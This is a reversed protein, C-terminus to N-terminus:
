NVKELAMVVHLRNRKKPAKRGPRVNTAHFEILGGEGILQVAENWGPRANPDGVLLPPRKVATWDNRKKTARREVYIRVTAKDGTDPRKDNGRRLIRYSLGSDTTAFELSADADTGGLRDLNGPLPVAEEADASPSADDVLAVRFGAYPGGTNADVAARSSSQCEEAPRGYAGGRLVRLSGELVLPDIAVPGRGTYADDQYRDLVWERINGLMDYLGWRNPAKQGVPHSEDRSNGSHWAYRDLETTNDGHPWKTTTGARAAYEWQAETPLRYAMGEPLRGATREKETLLRCFEDADEASVHDVPLADGQHRSPSEGTVERYEKQTVERIGLYFDRSIRVRHVPREDANGGMQFEGAPIRRLQMGIANYFLDGNPRAAGPLESESPESQSVKADEVDVGLLMLEAEWEALRPEHPRLRKIAVYLQEAEDEDPNLLAAALDSSLAEVVMSEAQTLQALADRYGQLAGASNGADQLAQAAQAEDQAAQFPDAAHFELLIQSSREFASAWDRQARDVEQELALRAALQEQARVQALHTQLYAYAMRSTWPVGILTVLLFLVRFYNHLLVNDQGGACRSLLWDISRVLGLLFGGVGVLAALAIPRRNGAKAKAHPRAPPPEVPAAVAIAAPAQEASRSGSAAANTPVAPSAIAGSSDRVSVVAPSDGRLLAFVQQQEDATLPQVKGDQVLADIQPTEELPRQTALALRGVLARADPDRLMWLERFLRSEAPQAFDQAKFLLNEETNFREWLPLRGVTLCRLACCISLHSFRDLEANYARTTERQPHQYNPHGLESSRQGALAPVYMGDYDILKLLLKGQDGEPVLVVNGHQLDAHAIGAGRLRTAVKIWLQFLQDLMRPQALSQAVFRNLSLGEIWRMKVLPYWSGGIRVGQELYRFETMFPLQAAILHDSIARYRERLDRVERKFFKVAWTNRTAPCYVKYVDAFNGAYPMPLGLPGTEPEGGQLEKDSTSTRLNQVAENFQAAEPWPGKRAPPSPGASM